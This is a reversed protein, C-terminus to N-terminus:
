KKMKGLVQPYLENKVWGFEPEAKLAKELYVVSSSYDGLFTYSQAIVTLLSLYNWNEILDNKNQEMLELAKLYYELAEKKSGGFIAPMYFQINAYQVYGLPNRRDSSIALRACDVSKPGLFPASLKNLGIRYGYFAAKYSNVLSLNRGNDSLTVLNKEALDLYKAAEKNKRNGICWGIYGYQYNVLELLFDNDGPKVTEMRDICTKWVAMNNGIYANYIESRYAARANLSLVM